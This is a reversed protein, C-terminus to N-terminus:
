KETALDTSGGICYKQEFWFGGGYGSVATHVNLPLCTFIFAM